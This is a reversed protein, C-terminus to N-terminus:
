RRFPVNKRDKKAKKIINKISGDTLAYHPNNSLLYACEDDTIKPDDQRLKIYELLVSAHVYQAESVVGLAYFEELKAVNEPSQLYDLYNM